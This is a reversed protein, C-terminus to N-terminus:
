KYYIFTVNKNRYKVTFTNIIKTKVNKHCFHNLLLHDKKDIIKYSDNNCNYISSDALNLFEKKGILNHFYNVGYFCETPFFTPKKDAKEKMEKNTPYYNCFNKLSYYFNINVNSKRISSVLSFDKTSFQTSEKNIISKNKNYDYSFININNNEIKKMNENNNKGNVLYLSHINMKGIIKFRLKKYNPNLNCQLFSYKRKNNKSFYIKKCKYFSGILYIEKEGEKWEIVFKFSNNNLSSILNEFIKRSSFLPKKTLSVKRLYEDSISTM